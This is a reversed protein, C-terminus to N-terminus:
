FTMLLHHIDGPPMPLLKLRTFIVTYGFALIMFIIGWMFVKLAGSLKGSLVRNLKTVTMIAFVGSVIGIIDIILVPTIVFQTM